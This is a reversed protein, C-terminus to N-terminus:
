SVGMIEQFLEWANEVKHCWIRGAYKNQPGSREQPIFSNAGPLDETPDNFLRQSGRWSPNQYMKEDDNCNDILPNFTGELFRYYTKKSNVSGNLPTHSGTPYVFYFEDRDRKDTRNTEMYQWLYFAKRPDGTQELLSPWWHHTHSNEYPLRAAAMAFFTRHASHLTADIVWSNDFCFGPNKILFLDRFISQKMLWTWYSVVIDKDMEGGRYPTTRVALVDPIVTEGKASKRDEWTERKGLYGFCVHRTEHFSDWRDAHSDYFLSNCYMRAFPRLESALEKLRAVPRKKRPRHEM